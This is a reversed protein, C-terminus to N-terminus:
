GILLESGTLLGEGDFAVGSVTEPVHTTEADLSREEQVSFWVNGDDLGRRRLTAPNPGNTSTLSAAVLPEPGVSADLALRTPQDTVTDPLRFADVALDDWVFPGTSLAAWGVIEEVHSGSDNAEEEQLAIRFGAATVDDVRPVVWEIGADSQLQVLLAPAEEFPRSFGVDVFGKEPFLNLPLTGVELRRDGGLDWVGEEVALMGVSEPNPHIGDLYDPEDLYLTAGDGSIETFEVTVPDPGNFTAPTAFVVPDELSTAFDVRKAAATLGDVRTVAGIVPQAPAVVTFGAELRTADGDDLDIEAVVSHFGDALESTDFGVARGDEDGRVDFPAASDVFVERSDVSFRVEDVDGLAGDVFAYLPRGQAIEGGNLPEPDRRDPARSYLLSFAPADGDGTGDDGGGDAGDGDGDSGGGGATTALRWLDDTQKSFVYLEGREDVALRTDTRGNESGLADQLTTPVGDIEFSLRRPAVWEQPTIQGDALAATVAATPAAFMQGNTFDGFVLQGRLDPILEGRYVFGPGVAASTRGFPDTREMEEHDYATYPYQFSGIEASTDVLDFPDQSKDLWGERVDWGYNAGPLVLNIEEARAEGIDSAILWGTETDFSLGQPNRFGYAYLEPLADDRGVFPNDAPVGYAAGDAQALPDIRIISGALLSTNQAQDGPDNAGGGDAVGVYMLGYDPEGPAATPDFLLSNTNHNSYPQEVRFLERPPVSTDIRVPDAPDLLTWEAVVSHFVPEDLDDAAAFVTVGAPASAAPATYSAYVKGYGAAAPDAFDPHFAIGRLGAEPGGPTFDDRGVLDLFPTERVRGDEIVRVVGRTDTAYLRADGDRPDIVEQVAASSLTTDPFRTVRDLEVTLPSPEIDPYLDVVTAL